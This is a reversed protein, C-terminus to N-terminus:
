RWASLDRGVLAALEDIKPAFEARLRRLLEPDVADRGAASTNLRLLGHRWRSRTGAPLASAVATLPAPLELVFNQLRASRVRRNENVPVFSPRFAEDVGLFRLVGGFVLAEDAVWDDFFIVHVRERGFVDFWRWVHSALDAIDRYYLSERIGSRRPLLRGQKREEEAALAEGFDRITEFGGAVQTAHYAHMIAVPDRLMVIISADPSFDAIEAAATRSYLYNTSAEGLRRASAADGGGFLQLYEETTRREHGLHHQDFGFFQPEKLAPMFIDPHQRLHFYLASTAAKPAGVIFFDPRRM